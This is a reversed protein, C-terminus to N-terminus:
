LRPYFELEGAFTIILTTSDHHDTSTQVAVVKFTDGRRSIKSRCHEEEPGNYVEVM